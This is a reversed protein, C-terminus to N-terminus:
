VTVVGGEITSLVDLTENGVTICFAAIGEACVTVTELPPPPDSPVILMEAAGDHSEALTLLAVLTMVNTGVEVAV